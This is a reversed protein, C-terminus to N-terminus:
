DKLDLTLFRAVDGSRLHLLVMNNRESEMVQKQFGSAKSVTQTGVRTIVDGPRIGARDATSGSKVSTVVVGKIDSDLGFRDRLSASMDQVRFGFESNDKDKEPSAALSHKSPLEELRVAVTKNRGNRIIGIRVRRDPESSSVINKLHSPDRIEEDEFKVIVDGTEIGAKEAPSDDVVDGVLAGNRIDLDLARATADNLDQIYVGLWARQVYGKAILDDMVNKAMNSPIAFGVGRNAREFGGTAIATNIGILEGNLNLLAGGSNGPNIAADTQIFDEYKNAGIINSRGLASIIGATVTHSLNPSFPSGVAIVWEGVRVEASNGLQISTLNEAEIKLVAVDSGPDTGIIEAIYERKDMLRITIEDVNEVVHNNTLIYGADADVIVGSGLANTRHEREEMGPPLFNWGFYEEFEKHFRDMKVVKNTVITVVAPNVKEAVDAFVQQFSTQPFAELSGLNFLISFTILTIKRM